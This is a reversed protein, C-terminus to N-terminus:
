IYQIIMNDDRRSSVYLKNNNQHMHINNYIYPENARFTCCAINSPHISWSRKEIDFIYCYIQTDTKFLYYLNKESNFSRIQKYYLDNQTINKMERPFLTPNMYPFWMLVDTRFYSIMPQNNKELQVFYIDNNRVCARITKDVSESKSMNNRVVWILKDINFPTIVIHVDISIFYIFNEIVVTQTNQCNTPFSITHKLSWENTTTDFVAITNYGAKSPLFYYLKNSIMHSIHPSTSEYTTNMDQYFQKDLWTNSVTNFIYTCLRSGLHLTLYLNENNYHLNTSLYTLESRWLSLNPSNQSLNIWKNKELDMKYLIINNKSNSYFYLCNNGMCSRISHYCYKETIDSWGLIPFINEGTQLSKWIGIADPNPNAKSFICIFCCIILVVLCIPITIEM